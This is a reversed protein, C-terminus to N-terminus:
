EVFKSEARLTSKLSSINIQGIFLVSSFNSFPVFTLYSLNCCENLRLIQTSSVIMQSSFRLVFCSKELTENRQSEVVCQTVHWM